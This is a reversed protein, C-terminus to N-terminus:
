RGPSVYKKVEQPDTPAGFGLVDATAGRSIKELMEVPPCAHHIVMGAMTDAKVKWIGSNPPPAMVSQWLM